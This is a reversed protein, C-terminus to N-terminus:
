EMKKTCIGHQTTLLSIETKASTRSCLVLSNEGATLDYTDLSKEMAKQVQYGSNLLLLFSTKVESSYSRHNKHSNMLFYGLM